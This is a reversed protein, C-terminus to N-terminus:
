ATPAFDQAHSLAENRSSTVGLADVLGTIEFVRAVLPDSCVTVFSGGRDELRWHTRLLVRLISADLFWVEGLDLVVCLKGSEIARDLAAKLEPVTAVDLEGHPAVGYTEADVAGDEIRFSLEM